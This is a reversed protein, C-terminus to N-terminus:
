GEKTSAFPALAWPFAELVWDWGHPNRTLIWVAFRERGSMYESGYLGVRQTFPYSVSEPDLVM